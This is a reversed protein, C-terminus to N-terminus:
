DRPKLETIRYVNDDGLLIGFDVKDGPNVGTLDVQETVPLDMTMAPWSLAPIPDHSINVEGKTADVSNIVGKGMTVGSQESQEMSGMAEHGMTQHDMTQAGAPFASLSIVTTLAILTKM